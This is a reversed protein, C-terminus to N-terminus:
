ILGCDRATNPWPYFGRGDDYARVAAQLQAWAPWHDATGWRDLFDSGYRQQFTLDMQLGGYYGNGTNASWDGEYQHICGFATRLFEPVAPAAYGHQAVQLAAIASRSEWLHLMATGSPAAASAFTRTVKGPYIKRLRLALRRSYSVRVALRSHPRPPAPLKLALSRHLRTLAADRAEDARRLWVDITWQLYHPDTSRRYSYSSPTERRRAAREYTWTLTRYHDIVSRLARASTSRDPRVTQHAFAAGALAFMLLAALGALGLSCRLRM